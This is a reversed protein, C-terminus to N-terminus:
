VDNEVPVLDEYGETTALITDTDAKWKKYLRTTVFYARYKAKGAEVGREDKAQMIMSAIFASM